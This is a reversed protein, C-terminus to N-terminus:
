VGDAELKITLAGDPIGYAKFTLTGYASGAGGPADFVVSVQCIAGPPLPQNCSNNTLKFYRSYSALTMTIAGSVESGVNTVTFVVPDSPVGLGLIMPPDMPSVTLSPVGGGDVSSGDYSPTSGDGRREATGDRAVDGTDADMRVLTEDLGTDLKIPLVEVRAGDDGLGPTESGADGDTGIGDRGSSDRGDVALDRGAESGSVTAADPGTDPGGVPVDSADAILEADAAGPDAPLDRAPALDPAAAGADRPTAQLGKSRGCAAIALTTAIVLGFSRTHRARM